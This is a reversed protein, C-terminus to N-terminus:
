DKATDSGLEQGKRMERRARVAELFEVADFVRRLVGKRRAEIKEATMDHLSCKSCHSANTRLHHSRAYAEGKEKWVSEFDFCDTLCALFRGSCGTLQACIATKFAVCPQECKYQPSM